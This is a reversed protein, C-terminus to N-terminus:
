SQKVWQLSKLYKEPVCIGASAEFAVLFLTFFIDWRLFLTHHQWNGPSEFSIATAIAGEM